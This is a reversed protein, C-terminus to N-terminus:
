GHAMTNDWTEVLKVLGAFVNDLARQDVNDITDLRTHYTPDLSKMGIGIISLSPVGRLQFSAADTGGMPLKGTKYPIQKNRLAEETKALLAKDYKVFSMAEGTIVNIEEPLRVSDINILFSHENKVEAEHAKIYATSGRLGKEEAGFSIFRLRTNQLVSKGNNSKDAFNTVINKALIVGSLNDCAGEVVRDGHFSFYIITIPSFALFGLYIWNNVILWKIMSDSQFIAASIIVHSLLYIPFFAILLGSIMTLPGGPKGLRYWWICEETSDMHGSFILTSKVEGQPELVATVNLSTQKAFLFDAIGENCMVDCVLVLTNVMSIILAAFPSFWFVVLSLMFGMACFKMKTFKAKLPAQFAEVSVRDTYQLMQNAVYEQAKREADSGATRPGFRTIFDQIQDKM